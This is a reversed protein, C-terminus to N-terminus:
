TGVKRATGGALRRPDPKVDSPPCRCIMIFRWSRTSLNIQLLM